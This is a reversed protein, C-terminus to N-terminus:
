RTGINLRTQRPFSRHKTPRLNVVQFNSSRYPFLFQQDFEIFKNKNAVEVSYWKSLYIVSCYVILDIFVSHLALM